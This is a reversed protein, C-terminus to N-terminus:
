KETRRLVERFSKASHKKDLRFRNGFFGTMKDGFQRPTSVDLLASIGILFLAYSSVSIVTALALARSAFTVCSIPKNYDVPTPTRTYKRTTHIGFGLCTSAIFACLLKKLGPIFEFTHSKDIRSPKNLEASNEAKNDM